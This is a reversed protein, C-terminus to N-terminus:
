RQQRRVRSGKCRIWVENMGGEYRRCVLNLFRLGEVRRWVENM